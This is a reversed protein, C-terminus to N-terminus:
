CQLVNQSIVKANVLICSQELCSFCFTTSRAETYSYQNDIMYVSIYMEHCLIYTKGSLLFSEKLWSSYSTSMGVWKTPVEVYYIVLSVHCTFVVSKPLFKCACENVVTAVMKKPFM